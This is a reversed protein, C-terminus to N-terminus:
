RVYHSFVSKNVFVFDYASRQIAVSSEVELSWYGGSVVENEGKM